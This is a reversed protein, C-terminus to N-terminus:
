QRLPEDLVYGLGSQRIKVYLSGNDRLAIDKIRKISYRNTKFEYWYDGDFLRFSKNITSISICTFRGVIGCFSNDSTDHLTVEIRSDNEM